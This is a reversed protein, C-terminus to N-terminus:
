HESPVNWRRAFYNHIPVFLLGVYAGYLFSEILGLCFGWPSLWKFAPLMMELFPAMAHLHPPVVLGYIVCVVFTLGMFVGLSWSVVKIHLM